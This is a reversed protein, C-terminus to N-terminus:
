TNIYKERKIKDAQFGADTAVIQSPKRYVLIYFYLVSKVCTTISKKFIVQPEISNFNLFRLFTVKLKLSCKVIFLFEGDSQREHNKLKINKWCSKSSACLLILSPDVSLERRTNSGRRHIKRLFLLKINVYDYCYAKTNWQTQTTSMSQM